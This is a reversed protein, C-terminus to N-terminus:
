RLVCVRKPGINKKFSQNFWVIKQNANAIAASANQIALLDEAAYYSIIDDPM